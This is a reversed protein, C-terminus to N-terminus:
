QEYPAMIRWAGGRQLDMAEVRKMRFVRMKEARVKRM